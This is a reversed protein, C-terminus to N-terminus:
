KREALIRAKEVDYDARISAQLRRTTMDRVAILGLTETSLPLHKLHSAGVKQLNFNIVHSVATWLKQLHSQAM